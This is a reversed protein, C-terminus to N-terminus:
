QMDAILKDRTEVMEDTEKKLKVIAQNLCVIKLLRENFNEKTKGELL